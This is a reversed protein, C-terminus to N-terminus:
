RRLSGESCQHYYQINEIVQLIDQMTDTKFQDFCSEFSDHGQKIDALRKWPSLLMLMSACYLTHNEEDNKNPLWGGIFNPMTEHGEMRVVRCVGAKQSDPEYFVRANSWKAVPKKDEYTDLMFKLYNYASLSNRHNSYDALDDKLQLTDDLMEMQM